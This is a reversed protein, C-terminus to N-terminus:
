FMKLFENYIREYEGSAKVKDLAKQWENIIGDDMEKSCAIYLPFSFLEVGTNVLIDTSYGFKKLKYKVNSEPNVLLDAVGNIVLQYRLRNDSTKRLNDYGEELLYNMVFGEHRSAIMSVRKTDELTKFIRPDDSRKFFSNSENTLPGIWKYQHKRKETKFLSFLMYNSYTQTYKEGRAGPLVRIPYDVRLERMVAKIIEVSFGKLEGNEVYNYPPYEETIIHLTNSKDAKTEISNKQLVPTQESEIEENKSSCSNFCVVCALLLFFNKM